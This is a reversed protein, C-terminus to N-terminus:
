SRCLSIKQLCTLEEEVGPLRHLQGGHDARHNLKSFLNDFQQAYEELPAPAVTVEQRKTM